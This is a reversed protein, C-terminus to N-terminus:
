RRSLPHVNLYTVPGFRAASVAPAKPSMGFGTEDFNKADIVLSVYSGTPARSGPPGTCVNCAFRGKVTVLYVVVTNAGPITNNPATANALTTVVATAWAVPHGGDVTVARDAMATLRRVASEPVPQGPTAKAPYRTAASGAAGCGAVALVLIVILSALWRPHKM